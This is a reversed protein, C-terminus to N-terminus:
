SMPPAPSSCSWNWRRRRPKGAAARGIGHSAGTVLVVKGGVAERLAKESPRGGPNVLRSAVQSAARLPLPASSEEM